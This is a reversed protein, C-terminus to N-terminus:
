KVENQNLEAHILYVLWLYPHEAHIKPLLDADEPLNVVAISHYLKTILKTLYTGDRVTCMNVYLSIIKTFLYDHDKDSIYQLLNNLAVPDVIRAFNFQNLNTYPHTPSTSNTFIPSGNEVTMIGNNICWLLVMKKIALEETLDRQNLELDISANHEYLLKGYPYFIGLDTGGLNKILKKKRFWM